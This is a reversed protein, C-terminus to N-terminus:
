GDELHLRLGRVLPNSEHEPGAVLDLADLAIVAIVVLEFVVRREESCTAQESRVGSPPRLLMDALCGIMATVPDEPAPVVDTIRVKSCIKRRSCTFAANM